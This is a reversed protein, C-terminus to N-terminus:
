PSSRLATTPARCRHINMTNAMTNPEVITKFAAHLLVLDRFFQEVQVTSRLQLRSRIQTSRSNPYVVIIYVRTGKLIYRGPYVHDGMTSVQSSLDRFSM